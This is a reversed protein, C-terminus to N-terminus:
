SDTFDPLVRIFQAKVPGAGPIRDWNLSERNNRIDRIIQNGEFIGDVPIVEGEGIVFYGEKRPEVRLPGSTDFIEGNPGTKLWNM